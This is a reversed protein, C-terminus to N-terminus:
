KEVEEKKNPEYREVEAGNEYYIETRKGYPDLEIAIGNAIGGEFRIDSKLTGDTYFERSSGHLLGEWFHKEFIRNGDDALKVARGSFLEGKYTYTGNDHEVIDSLKKARVGPKENQAEVEPDIEIVEPTGSDCSSLSLVASIALLSHLIILPRM